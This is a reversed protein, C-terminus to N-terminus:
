RTEAERDPACRGAVDWMLRPDFTVSAVMTLFTMMMFATAGWGADESGLAGFHVLPVFFVIAFPDTKSWRGMEAILRLMRTKAILRRRSGRWVSLVCWGLAFIKAAPTLVSTCFILAGLPWLGSKFLIHVGTMITYRSTQGLHNSINMPYLNAPFILVLAAILLAATWGVADLKRVRLRAGCRPCPRGEHALPQVLDCTTCGLVPEGHPPRTEGGIARWVTRADLTARSLMTLFAAAIFCAGGLEITIRAQDINVLRYYGICGALLYVDLMAWPDLWLSWRFAAGLWPPRRGLRLAGLVGSLLGFRVCPLIIVFMASLGALLFWGRQWLQAVGAATVNQSHMNFIDVRLLPLVNVPVLLLLTALSCALAAGLSRGTTKELDTRCRVCVATDRRLLRPIEELTGCDPCAITV